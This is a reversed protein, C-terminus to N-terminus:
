YGPNQPELLPNILLENQPLPWLADTPNWGPKVSLTVDLMGNRKLDFFRHGQETFLELRKENLIAELVEQENVANTDSLGALNRIVNLDEKAGSLDGQKLRAESRILYQESLRLLVSCEVTSGTDNREKYKYPHHWTNAGDSLSRIWHDKRLDGPEFTQYLTENLSVNHPPVSEFILLAGEDTNRGEYSPALQWITSSSGRLFATDFLTELQYNETQNLVYSAANSAEAWRESYLYVRALFAKVVTKNARARDPTIYVEPLLEVANELDEIIHQTLEEKPMRVVRNNQQYDTGTVYPVDGFLWMLYFHNLSRVFLAEGMFQNRDTESLSTSLVLKEYAMNSAYVQKYANNWLSSIYANSALLGNTYFTSVDITANNYNILEDSYIGLLHTLGTSKGSLFGNERMQGYLDAVAANATANSEFVASATLQSNPDDTEVFDDCCVFLSCLLFVSLLKVRMNIYITKM